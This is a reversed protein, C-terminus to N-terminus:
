ELLTKMPDYYKIVALIFFIISYILPRFQRIKVRFILNLITGGIAYYLSLAMCIVALSIATM